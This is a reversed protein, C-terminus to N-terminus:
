VKRSAGGDKRRELISRELWTCICILIDCLIFVKYFQCHQYNPKKGVIKLIMGALRKKMKQEFDIKSQIIILRSEFIFFSWVLFIM